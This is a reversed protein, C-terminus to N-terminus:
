TVRTATIYANSSATGGSFTSFAILYYTITSSLKVRQSPLTLTTQGLAFAAGPVFAAFTVGANGAPMTNNTSSIGAQAVTWTGSNNIFAMGGVDWIGPTLSISTITKATSTVLSVASANATLQEGISGAVPSTSSGSGKIFGYTQTTANNGFSNAYRNISEQINGAGTVANTNSSNITCLTLGFITGSGVSVGSATGSNIVSYFCGINGTGASIFTTTNQASTDIVCYTSNIVATSSTSFPLRFDSSRLNVIGASNSSATTSAGTNTFVSQVYSLMGTSSMTHLAIGTTGINGYCNFINIASSASSSSYSVGTANLYNLYCNNLNVVSAASGSVTLFAASNTQLQLGTLTATGATSLTANGSIIVNGTGNLSGDSGFATIDVGAKLTLNETYTGPRVFVTEGSSAATIAGQITTHTGRNATGDVIWKACNISTVTLTSGTGSTVSANTGASLTAGGLINWNGATPPLAGGTDGTITKGTTTGGAVALTINPTSYGVTLSADPSTITGVNIHTGGVNLATTGIWLQGDTNLGNASSGKPSGAISFDANNAYCTDNAFGAM